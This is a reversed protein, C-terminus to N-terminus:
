KKDKFAVFGIECEYADTLLVSYYVREEFAMAAADGVAKLMKHSIPYYKVMYSSHKCRIRKVGKPTATIVTDGITTDFLPMAGGSKGKVDWVLELKNM